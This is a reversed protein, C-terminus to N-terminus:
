RSRMAVYMTFFTKLDFEGDVIFDGLQKLFDEIHPIVLIRILSTAWTCGAIISRRPFVGKSYAGKVRVRRRAFYMHSSLEVVARPLGFHLAAHTYEIPSIHEYFQSIDILTGAATDGQAHAAEAIRAAEFAAKAAGRRPAAALFPRAIRQELLARCHTYRIRAWIRYVTASLGVLRAGGSKKSLAVETIAWVAKPWRRCREVLMLLVGLARRAGRSLLLTHRPRMGCIGVATRGHFTRGGAHVDDDGIEPLPIDTYKSMVVNVMEVEKMLDESQDDDVGDWLRGWEKLGYDAAEQATAEGRHLKSASASLHAVAEPAKTIKHAVSYSAAAAWKRTERQRQVNRRQAFAHHVADLRKQFEAAKTMWGDGKGFCWQDVLPPKGHRSRALEALLKLGERLAEKAMSDEVDGDYRRDKIALLAGARLGIRRLVIYQWPLGSELAADMDAGMRKQSGADRVRRAADAQRRRVVKEGHVDVMLQGYVKLCLAHQATYHLQRATWALHQGLRGQWDPTHRFQREARQQLEERERGIGRFPAALDDDLLGFASMLEVEAGAHWELMLRSVEDIGPKDDMKGVRDQAWGGWNVRVAPLQPGIPREQPLLRPITLGRVKPIRGHHHSHCEAGAPATGRGSDCM